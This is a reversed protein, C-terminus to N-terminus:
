ILVKLKNCYSTLFKFVKKYSLFLLIYKLMKFLPGTQFRSKKGLKYLLLKKVVKAVPVGFVKM